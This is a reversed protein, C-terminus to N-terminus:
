SKIVQSFINDVWGSKSNVCENYNSTNSISGSNSSSGPAGGANCGYFESVLQIEDSFVNDPNCEDVKEISFDLLNSKNPVYLSLKFNSKAYNKFNSKNGINLINRDEIHAIFLGKKTYKYISDGVQVEGNSSLISAFNDNNIVIKEENENKQFNGSLLKKKEIHQKFNDIEANSANYVLEMPFFGEKYYNKILNIENEKGDKINEYLSKLTTSSNIKLNNNEFDYSIQEQLNTKNTNRFDLDDKSCAILAM